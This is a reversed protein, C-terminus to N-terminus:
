SSDGLVQLHHLLLSLYGTVIDLYFLIIAFSEDLLFIVYVVFSFINILMLLSSWISSEGIHEELYLM